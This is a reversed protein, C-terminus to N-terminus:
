AHIEFHHNQCLVYSKIKYSYSSDEFIEREFSVSNMIDCLNGNPGLIDFESVYIYIYNYINAKAM